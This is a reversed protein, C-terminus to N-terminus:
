PTVLVLQSDRRDFSRNHHVFPKFLSKTTADDALRVHTNTKVFTWKPYARSDTVVGGRLHAGFGREITQVSIYRSDIIPGFKDFSIIHILWINDCSKYGFRLRFKGGLNGKLPKLQAWYEM